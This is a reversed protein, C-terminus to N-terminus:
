DCPYLSKLALYIGDESAMAYTQNHSDLWGPVADAYNVSPLCIDGRFQFKDMLASGVEDICGGQDTKCAALYESVTPASFVSVPAQDVLPEPKAASSASQAFAAGCASILFLAIFAINTRM